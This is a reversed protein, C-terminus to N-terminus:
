QMEIISLTKGINFEALLFASAIIRDCSVFAGKKTIVVMLIALIPPLLSYITNEM